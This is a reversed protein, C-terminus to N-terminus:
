GCREILFRDFHPVTFAIQGRSSQYILGKDICAARAYGESEALIREVAAESFGM